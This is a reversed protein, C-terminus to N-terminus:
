TLRKQVIKRFQDRHYSEFRRGRRGLRLARFWVSSCRTLQHLTYSDFRSHTLTPNVTRHGVTSGVRSLNAYTSLNSSLAPPKSDGTNGNVSCRYVKKLVVSDKVRELGRDRCLCRIATLRLITMFFAGLV